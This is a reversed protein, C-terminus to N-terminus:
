PAARPLQWSEPPRLVTSRDGEALTRVFGTCEATERPRPGNDGRGAAAGKRQLEPGRSSRGRGRTTADRHEKLHSFPVPVRCGGGETPTLQGRPTKVCVQDRGRAQPPTSHFSSFVNSSHEARKRTLHRFQYARPSDLHTVGAALRLHQGTDASGPVASAASRSGPGPSVHHECTRSPSRLATM